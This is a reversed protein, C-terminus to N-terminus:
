NKFLVQVQTRAAKELFFADSFAGALSEGCILVGHNKKFKLCPIICLHRGQLFDTLFNQIGPIFKFRKLIEYM